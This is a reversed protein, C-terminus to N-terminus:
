LAGKSKPPTDTLLVHGQEDVWRYMEGSIAPPTISVYGVLLVGLSRWMVSRVFSHPRAHMMPTNRYGNRCASYIPVAACVTLHFAVSGWQPQGSLWIGIGIPKKPCLRLSLASGQYAREYTQRSCRKDPSTFASPAPMPHLMLSPSTCSGLRANDNGTSGM